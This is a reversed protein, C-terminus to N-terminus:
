DIAYEAVNTATIAPPGLIDKDAMGPVYINSAPYRSLRQMQQSTRLKKISQRLQEPKIM